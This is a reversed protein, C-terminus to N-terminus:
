EEEIHLPNHASMVEFVMMAAIRFGLMFAECEDMNILEYRNDKLNEYISKADDSLYPLLKDENQIILQKLETRRPSEEPKHDRPVITGYWFEELIKM